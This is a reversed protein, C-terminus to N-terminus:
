KKTVLDVNSGKVVAGLFPLLQKQYSAFLATDKTTIASSKQLEIEFINGVGKVTDLHFVTNGKRWLERRKEVVATVSLSAKLFPLLATDNVPYLGGTSATEKGAVFNPREYYILWQKKAEVRLKLRGSRKKNESPLAFFYDVQNKVVEKTAGLARLAKRIPGFDDCRHKLELNTIRPM